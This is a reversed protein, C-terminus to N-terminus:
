RVLSIVLGKVVATLKEKVMVMLAASLVGRALEPAMGKFLGFLGDNALVHSVVGTISLSSEAEGAKQRAQKLRKARLYPYTVFTAIARGPAGLWFAEAFTLGQSALRHQFIASKIREVVAFQIAPKTCLAFNASVGSYMGLVGKQQLVERTISLMTKSSDKNAQVRVGITDMPMSVPMHFWDSIYGLTLDSGVSM